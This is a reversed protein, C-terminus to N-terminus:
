HSLNQFAYGKVPNIMEELKNAHIATMSIGLYGINLGKLIM